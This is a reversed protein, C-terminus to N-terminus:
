EEGLPVSLLPIIALSGNPHEAAVHRAVASLAVILGDREACSLGDSAGYDEPHLPNDALEVRDVEGSEAYAQASGLNYAVQSETRAVTTARGRYTEAFLTRLRGALEEASAGEGLAEGAVRRVDERTTETIGVIRTALRALLRQVEASAVDFGVSAEVAGAAVAYATAVAELHFRRLLAALLREEEAWDLEDGQRTEAVLPVLPSPPSPPSSRVRGGGALEAALREGQEEWFRAFRPAWRRALAAMARRSRDAVGARREPALRAYARGEALAAHGNLRPLLSRAGSVLGEATARGEEGASPGSEPLVGAGALPDYLGAGVPGGVPPYGFRQRVEDRSIGQLQWLRLHQENEATPDDQLAEIQSTDFELSLAPDGFEPVLSRTLAGDLRAWQPAITNRYFTRQYNVVNSYTDNTAAEGLGVLVGPVGFASLITTETHERLEVYALENLDFGLRKVDEISALVLPEGGLRAQRYRERMAEADQVDMRSAERPVLGILPVAGADFFAKLFDTMANDIAAERFVVNMPGFGGYPLTPSPGVAYVIADRAPLLAPARGPIRYEWDPAAQDRPVPRIWDTRLPYLGVVRGAGDREKEVVCLNTVDAIVSVAALFEAESMYPNPARLLQRLRHEPQEVAEGAEDRYVRVSAASLARARVSVCAYVVAVKAYAQEAYAAASPEPWRPRGVHYAIPRLGLAERSEALDVPAPRPATVGRGAPTELPGPLLPRDRWRRFATAPTPLPSM